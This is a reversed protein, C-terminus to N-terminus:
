ASRNHSGNCFQIDELGTVEGIDLSGSKGGSFAFMQDGQWESVMSPINIITTM